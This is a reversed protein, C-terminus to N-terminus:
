SPVYEPHISMCIKHGLSEISAKTACGDGTRRSGGVFTMVFGAAHVGGVAHLWISGAGAGCWEVAAGAGTSARHEVTQGCSWTRLRVGERELTRNEVACGPCRTQVSSDSCSPFTCPSWTHASFRLNRHNIKDSKDVADTRCRSIRQSSRPM